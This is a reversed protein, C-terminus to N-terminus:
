HYGRTPREPGGDDDGRPDAGGREAELAEVRDSLDTTVDVLRGWDDVLDAAWVPPGEDDGDDGRDDGPRARDPVPALAFAALTTQTDGDAFAALTTQSAEPDPDPDTM